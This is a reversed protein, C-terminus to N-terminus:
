IWCSRVFTPFTSIIAHFTERCSLFACHEIGLSLGGSFTTFLFDENLYVTPGDSLPSILLTLTVSETKSSMGKRFIGLTFEVVLLLVGGGPALRLVKPM